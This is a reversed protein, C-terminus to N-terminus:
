VREQHVVGSSANILTKGETSSLLYKQKCDTQKRIQTEFYILMALRLNFLEAQVDAKNHNQLKQLCFQRWRTTAGIKVQVIQIKGFFEETQQDRLLLSVQPSTM